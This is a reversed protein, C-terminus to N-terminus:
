TMVMSDGPGDTMGSPAWSRPRTGGSPTAKGTDLDRRSFLGSVDIRLNLGRDGARHLIILRTDM